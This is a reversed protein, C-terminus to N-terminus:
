TEKEPYNSQSAIPHSCADQVSLFVLSVPFAAHSQNSLYARCRGGATFSPSRSNRVIAKRRITAVSRSSLSKEQKPSQIPQMFKNIEDFILLFHGHVNM